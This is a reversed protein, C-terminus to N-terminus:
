RQYLTAFDPLGNRRVERFTILRIHAIVDDIDPYGPMHPVTAVHHDSVM